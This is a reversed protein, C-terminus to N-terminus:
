PCGTGDTTGRADSEEREGENGESPVQARPLPFEVGSAATGESPVKVRVAAWQGHMPGRVMLTAQHRSAEGTRYAAAKGVVGDERESM